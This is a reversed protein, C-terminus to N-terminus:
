SGAMGSKSKQQAILDVTVLQSTFLFEEIGLWPGGRYEWLLLGSSQGPLMEWQPALSDYLERALQPLVKNQITVHPRFRQCDQPTLWASFCATLQAHLHQLDVSRVEIAVGRGLMRVRPFEIHIPATQACIQQLRSRITPLEGGPLAHLLTVHAPLYNREPPFHDRRLRNLKEFSFADLSLTVVLPFARDLIVTNLLNPPM